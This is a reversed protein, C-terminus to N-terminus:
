FYYLLFDHRLQIKLIAKSSSSIEQFQLPSLFPFNGSVKRPDLEATEKALSSLQIFTFGIMNHDNRYEDSVIM